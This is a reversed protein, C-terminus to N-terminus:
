LDLWRKLAAGVRRMDDSSLHGILADLSERRYSVIRDVQVESPSELGNEGSPLLPVRFSSKGTLASSVLCATVTTHIANAVDNQVILVPRPKSTLVGKESAVFIAGREIM